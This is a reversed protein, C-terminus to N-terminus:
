SGLSVKKKENGEDLFKQAVALAEKLEAKTARRGTCKDVLTKVAQKTDM